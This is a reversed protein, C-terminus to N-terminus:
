CSPCSVAALLLPERQDQTFLTSPLSLASFSFFRLTTRIPATFQAPVIPSGRESRKTQSAKAKRPTTQLQYLEQTSVPMVQYTGIRGVQGCAGHRWSV